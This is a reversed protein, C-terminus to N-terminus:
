TKFIKECVRKTAEGDELACFQKLFRKLNENDPNARKIESALEENTKVIPGPVFSDVDLYFGRLRDRYDEIDYMFFVMPRGLVAYDFYVSSYDTVLIDSILYLQTIDGTSINYAFDEFGTLDIDDAVLYHMRLIVVYEDGLERKLKELDLATSFKYKSKAFFQDDRWTPAYIVVKKDLPIGHSRKIKEILQENNKNRILFDNRPSGSEIINEKDIVFARSFVNTSFRNPSVMYDWNRSERYFNRNYTFTDTGPMFVAEIDAGLRKLPTGHWTQLYVTKEPKRVWLPFRANSVWYRAKSMLWIWKLSFRRVRPINNEKFVKENGKDVSWICKIDPRQKQIYEYIARPHCSYQRGGYSEFIAINKDAETKQQILKMLKGRIVNQRRTIWRGQNVREIAIARGKTTVVAFEIKGALGKKEFYAEKGSLVEIKEWADTKTYVYVDSFKEEPLEKTDIVCAMEGKDDLEAPIKLVEKTKRGKIYVRCHKVNERIDIKLIIDEEIIDADKIRIDSRISKKAICIGKNEYSLIYMVNKHFAYPEVSIVDPDASILSYVKAKDLVFVRYKKQKLLGIVDFFLKGEKAHAKKFISEKEDLLLVSPDELDTKGSLTICAKDNDFAFDDIKLGATAVRMDGPLDNLDLGNSKAFSELVIAQVINKIRQILDAEYRGDFLIDSIMIIKGKDLYEAYHDSLTRVLPKSIEDDLNVQSKTNDIVANNLDIEKRISEKMIDPILCDM